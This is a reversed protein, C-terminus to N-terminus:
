RGGSVRVTNPTWQLMYRSEDYSHDEAETDADDPNKESRALTPVTRVWHDNRNRFLFFGPKERPMNDKPITNMLMARMNDAGSVRSGGSKDAEEWFVGKWYRGDIKVPKEMDMAISQRNIKNWISNDAPGDHVRGHIGWEKEREVIGLAIETSTLGCGVNAQGNWGYWEYIRITDGPIFLSHVEGNSVAYWGVSFPHASGWDFARYIRWGKPIDFPEILAYNKSKFWSEDLIGGAVIDWDGNLWAQKESRTRASSLIIEKYNPTARMLIENEGWFARVALRPQELNGEPDRADLIIKGTGDPLRWREKIWSHGAGYPNCTSRIRRPVKPNDSRCCSFMRRYCEDTYWNTLEEWGQWPYAHGHYNYYDEPTRMHRLFLVEGSAWEWCMKTENFKIRDPFMRPFWKKTKAVVDALQPYTERFLIGRWDSGLGKETTRAFDMILVDTKGTGRPGHLMVEIVTSAMFQNQSGEQPFWAVKKGDVMLPKVTDEVATAEILRKDFARLEETTPPRQEMTLSM